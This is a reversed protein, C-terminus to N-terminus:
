APIHYENQSNHSKPDEEITRVFLSISKFISTVLLIVGFTGDTDTIPSTSKKEM